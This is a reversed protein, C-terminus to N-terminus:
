DIMVQWTDFLTLQKFKFHSSNKCYIPSQIITVILLTLRWFKKISKKHLTVFKSTTRLLNPLSADEKAYTEPFKYWAHIFYYIIVFQM